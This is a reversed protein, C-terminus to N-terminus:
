FTVSAQEFVDLPTKGRHTKRKYTRMINRFVMCATNKLYWVLYFTFTFFSLIFYIHVLLVLITKLSAINRETVIQYPRFSAPWLKDWTSHWGVGLRCRSFHNEPPHVFAEESYPCIYLFKSSCYVLPLVINPHFHHFFESNKTWDAQFVLEVSCSYDCKSSM